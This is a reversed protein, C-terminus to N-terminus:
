TSIGLQLYLRRQQLPITGTPDIVGPNGQNFSGGRIMSSGEYAVQAMWNDAFSQQVAFNWEPSYPPKEHMFRTQIEVDLPIPGNPDIPPFLTATSLTPTTGSSTYTAPYVFPANLYLGEYDNAKQSEWYIGLGARIV